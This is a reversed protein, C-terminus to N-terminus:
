RNETQRRSPSSGCCRQGAYPRSLGPEVPGHIRRQTTMRGLTIAPTEALLARHKFLEALQSGLVHPATTVFKPSWAHAHLAVRGACIDNRLAVHEVARSARDDWADAPVQSPATGASCPTANVGVGCTVSLRPAASFQSSDGNSPMGM